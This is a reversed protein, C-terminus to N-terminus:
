GDNEPASNKQVFSTTAREIGLVALAFCISWVALGRLEAAGQPVDPPTNLSSYLCLGGILVLLTVMSWLIWQYKRANKNFRSAM